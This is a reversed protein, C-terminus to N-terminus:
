VQEFLNIRTNEVTEHPCENFRKLAVMLGKSEWKALYVIGFGGEGINRHRSFEKYDYTKFEEPIIEGALETEFSSSIFSDFDASTDSKALINENDSSISNPKIEESIIKETLEIIATPIAKSFVEAEINDNTFPDSNVSANSKTLINENGGNIPNIIFQM